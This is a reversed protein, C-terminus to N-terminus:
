LYRLPNRIDAKSQSFTMHFIFFIVPFVDAEKAEM